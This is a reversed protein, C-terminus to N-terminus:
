QRTSLPLSNTRIAGSVHLSVARISPRCGAPAPENAARPQPVALAKAGAPWSAQVRRYFRGLRGNFRWVEAQRQILGTAATDGCTASNSITREFVLGPKGRGGPDALVPTARAWREPGAPACRPRFPVVLLSAVAGDRWGMVEVVGEAASHTVSWIEPDGDLTLDNMRLAQWGDPAAPLRRVADWRGRQRLFLAHAVRLDGRARDRGAPCGYALVAGRATDSWDFSQADLLVGPAGEACPSDLAGLLIAGLEVRRQSRARVEQVVSALRVSTSLRDRLQEGLRVLAQAEQGVPDDLHVETAFLLRPYPTAVSRAVIAGRRGDPHWSVALPADHALRLIAQWLLFRVGDGAGLVLEVAPLSGAGDDVVEVSWSTGPLLYRAADTATAQVPIAATLELERAARQLWRPAPREPHTADSRLRCRWRPADGCLGSSRVPLVEEPTRHIVLEGRGLEILRLTVLEHTPTWGLVQLSPFPSAGVAWAARQPLLTFALALVAYLAVPRVAGVGRPPGPLVFGGRRTVAAPGALQGEM